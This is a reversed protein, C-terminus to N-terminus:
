AKEGQRRPDTIYSNWVHVAYRIPAHDTLFNDPLARIAKSGPRGSADFVGSLIRSLESTEWFRPEHHVIGEDDIYNLGGVHRYLPPPPVRCVLDDNNVFRHVDARLVDGFGRDGVRPSGFAYVERVDGGCRDAALTALAAGLSHGTFWVPRNGDLHSKLRGWVEDLAKEFGGHVRGGREWDSMGFDLNVLWDALINRIDDREERRRLETGSFAVVAFDDNGAVYCQTSEGDFFEVEPLGAGEFRPAAFQPESYALMSAEALWWANVMEFEGSAHRFPHDGCGEFYAYDENPPVANAVTNSPVPKRALTM